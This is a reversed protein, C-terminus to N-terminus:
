EKKPPLNQKSFKVSIKPTKRYKESKQNKAVQEEPVQLVVPVQRATQAPSGAMVSLRTPSQMASTALPVFHVGTQLVPKVPVKVPVFWFFFFFFAHLEM